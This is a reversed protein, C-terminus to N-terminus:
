FRAACGLGRTALDPACAFGVKTDKTDSSPSPSTLFLVTATIGALGAGILSGVGIGRALNGLDVREQCAPTAPTADCANDRNHARAELEGIILGATGVAALGAGTWVAIWGVKRRGSGAEPPNAGDVLTRNPQGNHPAPARAANAASAVTTQLEVNQRTLQGPVVNVTRTLPLYGPASIELLISGAPVRLTRSLPLTGAHQGEVRVEAGEPRGSVELSGLHQGITLRSSELTAQYKAIWPDQPTELARGIHAEADVWRGLAQEALGMQALVRPTPGLDYARRFQELAAQDKGARRLDVGQKILAETDEAEASAPLALMLSLTLASSLVRVRLMAAPAFM